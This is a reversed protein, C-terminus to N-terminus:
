AMAQPEAADNDGSFRVTLLEDSVLQGHHDLMEPHITPLGTRDGRSIKKITGYPVDMGQRMLIFAQLLLIVCTAAFFFSLVMCAYIRSAHHRTKDNITTASGFVKNILPGPQADRLISILDWDLSKASNESQQNRSGAEKVGGSTLGAAVSDPSLVQSPPGPSFSPGTAPCCRAATSHLSLKFRWHM